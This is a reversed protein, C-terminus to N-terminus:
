TVSARAHTRPRFVFRTFVAMKNVAGSVATVARWRRTLVGEGRTVYCVESIGTGGDVSRRTTDHAKEIGRHYTRVIASLRHRYFTRPHYRRRLGRGGGGGRYLVQRFFQMKISAGRNKSHQYFTIRCAGGTLNIFDTLVYM